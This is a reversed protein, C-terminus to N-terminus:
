TIIESALQHKYILGEEVAMTELSPLNHASLLELTASRDKANLLVILSDQIDVPLADQLRAIIRNQITEIMDTAIEQRKQSQIGALDLIAFIDASLLTETTQDTLANIM